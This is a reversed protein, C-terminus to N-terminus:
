KFYYKIPYKQEHFSVVIVYCNDLKNLKIYLSITKSGHGMRKLLEVDKGFVYLLEDEYGKHENQLVESFDITTLSLLIEKAKKEDIIYALFLDINDQRNYNREIKYRDNKIAEKVETLYIAIDRPTIDLICNGGTLIHDSKIKKRDDNYM